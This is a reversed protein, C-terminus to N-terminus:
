WTKRGHRVWTWWRPSRRPCIGALGQRRLSAAVPESSVPEGAARLDALVPPTGYVGDAAAHSPAVKRRARFAAAAVSEHGADRHARMYFGSCSVELLDCMRKIPYNAKQAKIV